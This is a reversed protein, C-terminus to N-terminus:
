VPLTGHAHAFGALIQQVAEQAAADDEYAVIIRDANNVLDVAYPSGYLVVTVCKGENKLRTIEELRDASIGFNQQAYPRMGSITVIVDNNIDRDAARTDKAITIAASFINKKLTMAENKNFPKHHQQFAWQKAHLIRLVKENISQESIRGFKVAQEIAHLAQLPDTPALLIDAGAELAKVELEGPAYHDTVGKMGLGDTIILGQFGLQTRLLDTTISKSLTAPLNKEPELAPVSLHAIMIAKVDNEIAAVFPKLEIEELRTRDHNIIPLAEHSDIDTDGHGPFHKACAIIGADQLGKIFACGKQSIKQADSGFSRLNIVPNLANNNVDMVPALNMHVGISALETGIHYGVQYILNTDNIAGLTMNRAFRFGNRLRMASGWEADMAILLPIHPSLAQFRKTLAEQEHTFGGGLFLVGGVQHISILNEVQEVNMPYPSNQLFDKNLAENSVAAVFCLQAIKQRLTMKALTEQPNMALLPASLALLSLLHLLKM